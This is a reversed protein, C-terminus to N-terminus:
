AMGTPGFTMPFPPPTGQDADRITGTTQEFRSINDRLAHLLRKAHEPTMIVRSQVRAKPMGPLVSAFDIVFESNSHTIIALNAYIGEAVEENLEITIQNNPQEM